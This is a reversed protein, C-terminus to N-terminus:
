TLPKASLPNRLLQSAANNLIATTTIMCARWESGMHGHVDAPPTDHIQRPRSDGGGLDRGAAAAATGARLDLIAPVMLRSPSDMVLSGACPRGALATSSSNLAFSALFM